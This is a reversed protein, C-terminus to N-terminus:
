KLLYRRSQRQAQVAPKWGIPPTIFPKLVAPKWGAGERADARM